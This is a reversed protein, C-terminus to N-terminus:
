VAQVLPLRRRPPARCVRAYRVRAPLHHTATRPAEPRRLKCFFSFSVRSPPDSPEHTSSSRLLIRTPMHIAPYLSCRCTSRVNRGSAKTGHGCRLSPRYRVIVHKRTHKPRRRSSEHSLSPAARISRGHAHGMRNDREPPASFADAGSPPTSTANAGATGGLAPPGWVVSETWHHRQIVPRATWPAPFLRSRTRKVSLRRRAESGGGSRDIPASAPAFGPM